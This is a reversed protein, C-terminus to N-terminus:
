KKCFPNNLKLSDMDINMEEGEFSEHENREQREKKEKKDKKTFKPQLWETIKQNGEDNQKMRKSKYEKKEEEGELPNFERISKKRKRKITGLEKSVSLMFLAKGKKKSFYHASHLQNLVEESVEVTREGESDKLNREKLSHSIFKNAMSSDKTSFIDWMYKKPPLYEPNESYEPFYNIIEPYYGKIKKYM